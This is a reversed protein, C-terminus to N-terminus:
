GNSVGGESMSEAVVEESESTNDSKDDSEKSGSTSAEAEESSTHCGVATEPEGIKVVAFGDCDSHDTVVEWPM